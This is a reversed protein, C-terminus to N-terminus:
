RFFYRLFVLDRLFDRVFYKLSLVDLCLTWCLAVWGSLSFTIALTILHLFCNQFGVFFIFQLFFVHWVRVNRIHVKFLLQIGLCVRSVRGVGPPVVDVVVAVGPPQVEVVIINVWKIGSETAIDVIDNGRDSPNFQLITVKLESHYIVTMLLCTYTFTQVM